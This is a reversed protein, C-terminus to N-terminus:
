YDDIQGGTIKKFASNGELDCAFFFLPYYVGSLIKRIKKIFNANTVMQVFFYDRRGLHREEWKSVYQM